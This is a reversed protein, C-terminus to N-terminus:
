SINSASFHLHELMEGFLVIVSAEQSYCFYSKQSTSTKPSFTLYIWKTVVFDQARQNRILTYEWSQQVENLLFKTLFLFLM